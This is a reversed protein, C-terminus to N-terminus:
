TLTCAPLVAATLPRPQPVSRVGRHRRRPGRFRRPQSWRHIRRTPIRCCPASPFPSVFGSSPLLPLIQLCRFLFLVGRHSVGLHVWFVKYFSTVSAGGQLGRLQQRAASAVDEPRANKGADHLWTPLEARWEPAQADCLVLFLIKGFWGGAVLGVM